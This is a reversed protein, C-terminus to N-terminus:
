IEKKITRKTTWNKFFMESRTHHKEFGVLKWPCSPKTSKVYGKNHREIGKELNSCSSIYLDGNQQSKLFYVYFM